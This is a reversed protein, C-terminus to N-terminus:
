STSVHEGEYMLFATFPTDTADIKPTGHRGNCVLYTKGIALPDGTYPFVFGRTLKPLALFDAHTKSTILNAANTVSTIAAAIEADIADLDTNIATIGSMLSNLQDSTISVEGQVNPFAQKITAKLQRLQDDLGSVLDNDGPDIVLDKISM